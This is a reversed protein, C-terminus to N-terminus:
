RAVEDLDAYERQGLREWVAALSDLEAPRLRALFHTRVGALHDPRAADLKHRGAPTLVAFFGRGDDECRRREIMGQRELRDALKKLERETLAAVKERDITSTGQTTAEVTM